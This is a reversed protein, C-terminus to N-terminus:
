RPRDSWPMVRGVVSRPEGSRLAALVGTSIEADTLWRFHGGDRVFGLIVERPEGAAPIHAPLGPDTAASGLVHLVDGLVHRRITESAEPADSHIWAVMRDFLGARKLAPELAETNRYDVTLSQVQGGGTCARRALVTVDDGEEALARVLRALMGTAGVVLTRTLEGAGAADARGEGAADGTGKEKM